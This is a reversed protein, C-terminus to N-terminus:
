NQIRMCLNHYAAVMHITFARCTLKYSYHVYRIITEDLEIYYGYVLVSTYSGIKIKNHSIICYKYLHEGVLSSVQGWSSGQEDQCQTGRTM